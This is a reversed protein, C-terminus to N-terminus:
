CSCQELVLLGRLRAQARVRLLALEVAEGHSPKRIRTLDSAMAARSPRIDNLLVVSSPIDPGHRALQNLAELHGLTRIGLKKFHRAM